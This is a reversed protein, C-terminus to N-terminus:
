CPNKYFVKLVNIVIFNVNLMYSHQLLFIIPFKDKPIYKEKEKLKLKHKYSKKM